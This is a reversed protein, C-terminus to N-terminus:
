ASPPSRPCALFARAPVGPSRAAEECAPWAPAPRANPRPQRTHAAAEEGPSGMGRTCSGKLLAVSLTSMPTLVMQRAQDPNTVFSNRKKPSPPSPQMSSAAAEGPSGVVKESEPQAAAERQSGAAKPGQREDSM